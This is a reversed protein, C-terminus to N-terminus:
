RVSLKRLALKIEDIRVEAMIEQQGKYVTVFVKGNQSSNSLEVRVDDSTDKLIINVNM